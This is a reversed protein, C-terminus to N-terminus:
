RVQHRTLHSISHLFYTIFQLNSISGRDKARQISLYDLRTNSSNNLFIGCLVLYFIYLLVLLFNTSKNQERQQPRFHYINSTTFHCFISWQEVLSSVENSSKRVTCIDTKTNKKILDNKTIM